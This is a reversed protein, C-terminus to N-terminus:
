SRIEPDSAVIAFDKDYAKVRPDQPTPKPRTPADGFKEKIVEIVEQPDTDAVVIVTANSPGYWKGYYDRFDGENVENITKETGIPPRQGFISGPTMREM